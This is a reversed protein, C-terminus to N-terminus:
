TRPARLSALAGIAFGLPSSLWAIIPALGADRQEVIAFWAIICLTGLMAWLFGGVGGFRVARQWRAEPRAWGRWAFWGLTLACGLAILTALSLAVITDARAERIGELVAAPGNSAFSLLLLATFAALARAGLRRNSLASPAHM